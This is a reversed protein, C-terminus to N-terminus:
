VNSAYVFRHYGLRVEPDKSLLYIPQGRKQAIIIRDPNNELDLIFLNKM